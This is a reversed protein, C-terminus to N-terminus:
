MESRGKWRRGFWKSPFDVIKLSHKMLMILFKIRPNCNLVATDLMIIFTAVFTAVSIRNEGCKFFVIIPM